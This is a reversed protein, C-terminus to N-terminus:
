DVTSSCCNYGEINLLGNVWVKTGNKCDLQRFLSHIVDNLYLSRVQYRQDDDVNRSGPACWLSESVLSHLSPKLGSRISSKCLNACAWMADNVNPLLCAATHTLQHYVSVFGQRSIKDLQCGQELRRIVCTSHFRGSPFYQALIRSPMM